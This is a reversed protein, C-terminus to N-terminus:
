RDICIYNPVLRIWLKVATVYETFNATKQSIPGNEHFETIEVSEGKM